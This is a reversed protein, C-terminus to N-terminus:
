STQKQNQEKKGEQLTNQLFHAKTTFWFHRTQNCLQSVTLKALTESICALRCKKKETFYKLNILDKKNEGWYSLGQESM